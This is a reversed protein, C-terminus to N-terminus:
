KPIVTMWWGGGNNRAADSNHQWAWFFDKFTITRTSGGTGGTYPDNVYVDEADMGTVVVFHASTGRKARLAVTVDVIVPLNRSLM